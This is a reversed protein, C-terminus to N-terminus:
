GARQLFLLYERFTLSEKLTKKFSFTGQLLEFVYVFGCAACLPIFDAEDPDTSPVCEAERQWNVTMWM